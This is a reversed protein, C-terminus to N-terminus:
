NNNSLLSTVNNKDQNIKTSYKSNEDDLWSNISDYKSKIENENLIKVKNDINEQEFKSNM